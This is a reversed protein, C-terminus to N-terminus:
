FTWTLDTFGYLTDGQGTANPANKLFDGDLLAAAGVSLRLSDRVLWRRYRGEIQAGVDRGSAGSADRVSSNAFSDRAEDLRIGRLMVYADSEKDPKVELRLGPSFLNARYIAGYLMTPGFEFSRDGFLPDFRESSLDSPSKDGTARDLQLALRPSWPADFTFGAEAHLMAADHDLDTVDAPNSTARVTGAQSAYELDFDFDGKSTLRRWRVGLTSLDRNRTPADSADSEDLDLLYVEGLTSMPLPVEFHIGGFHVRDLEENLSAENDLASPADSPVRTTPSAYFATVKLKDATTWTIHAGDFSQLISRYQARAILRRSGLDMTFRGLTLDLNAGNILFDRPRWALYAQVPELADIEAPANGGGNGALRRNDLLEVGFAFDGPHAEARLLTQVSLFEDDGQRGAYFTNALTEYRPRISGSVSLWDPAGIADGLSWPQGATKAAASDQAWACPSAASVTVLASGFLLAVSRFM